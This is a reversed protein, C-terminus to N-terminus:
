LNGIVNGIVLYKFAISFLFCSLNEFYRQLDNFYHESVNWLLPVTLYKLDKDFLLFTRGNDFGGDFFWAYYGYIM